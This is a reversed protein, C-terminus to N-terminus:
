ERMRVRVRVRERKRGRKREGESARARAKARPRAREWDGERGRREDRGTEGRELRSEREETKLVAEALEPGDIIAPPFSPPLPLLLRKRPRPDQWRCPHGLRASSRAVIERAVDVM